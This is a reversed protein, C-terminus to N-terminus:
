PELSLSGAVLDVLRAPDGLAFPQEPQEKRQRRLLPARQHERGVESAGRLLDALEVTRWDAGHLGANAVRQQLQAAAQLHFIFGRSPVPQPSVRSRRGSSASPIASPSSRATASSCMAPQAPQRRRSSSSDDTASSRIASAGRRSGGTPKSPRTSSRSLVPWAGGRLGRRRSLRSLKAAATTAAAATVAMAM